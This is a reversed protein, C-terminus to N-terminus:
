SQQQSKCTIVSFTRFNQLCESELSFLGTVNGSFGDKPEALGSDVVVTVTGVVSSRSEDCYVPLCVFLDNNLHTSHRVVGDIKVNMQTQDRCQQLEARLYCLEESKQM